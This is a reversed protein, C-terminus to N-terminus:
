QRSGFLAEQEAEWDTEAKADLGSRLDDLDLPLGPREVLRSLRSKRDGPVIRLTAGKHTVEVEEGEAVADLLRFLNKRLQTATVSMGSPQVPQRVSDVDFRVSGPKRYAVV